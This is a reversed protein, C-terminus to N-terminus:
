QQTTSLEIESLVRWEGSACAVELKDANLIPFEANFRWVLAM